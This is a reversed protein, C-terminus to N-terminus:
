IGFSIKYPNIFYLKNSKLIPKTSKYKYNTLLHYIVAKYFIPSIRKSPCQQPGIGFM